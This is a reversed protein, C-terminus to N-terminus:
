EIVTITYPGYWDPEVPEGGAREPTAFIWRNRPPYFSSDIVITGTQEAIFDWSFQKTFDQKPLGQRVAVGGFGILEPMNGDWDIPVVRLGTMDWITKDQFGNYGGVWVSDLFISNDDKVHKITKVDDSTMKFGTTFVSRTTDNAFHVEVTVPKGVKITSDNVVGEGSITIKVGTDAMAAFALMCIGAACVTLLKMKTM